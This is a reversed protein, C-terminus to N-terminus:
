VRWARVRWRSSVNHLLSKDAKFLEVRNRYMFNAEPLLRLYQYLFHSQQTNSKTAFFLFALLRIIHMCSTCMKSASRVSGHTGLFVAYSPYPTLLQTVPIGILTVTTSCTMQSSTKTSQTRHRHSNALLFM